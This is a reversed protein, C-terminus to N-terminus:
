PEARKETLALFVDDMTGHRFEFDQLGDGLADMVDRAQAASAVPVRWVDDAAEPHVGLRRAAAALAAPDAVRVTLVSSSHQRRLEAPTGQAVIRGADIICVDAAEETEAMYHTTLFVTTGHEARLAHVADWVQERSQPDLGTTPEDLFLVAPDHVLARAIDTRRRQGGSLKGYRRDLFSGLQILDALEGVRRRAVDRSMGYFRARTELNERVTLLDDLLSSQFVVGIRRRIAADDHGVREGDIAIEGSDPALVTTICSITTSKGAGNTGLFAFVTGSQVSFSIGQVAHVSGYSKRLDRVEIGVAVDHRM